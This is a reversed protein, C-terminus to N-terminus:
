KKKRARARQKLGKTLKRRFRGETSPNEPINCKSYIQKIARLTIANNADLIQLAEYMSLIPLIEPNDM